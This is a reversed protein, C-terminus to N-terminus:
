QLGTGDGTDDARRGESHATIGCGDSRIKQWAFEPLPDYSASLWEQFQQELEEPSIQLLSPASGLGETWLSRLAGAGLHDHMFEFLAAAQLYAILDNQTRFERVLTRLEILSGEDSITRAVRGNEYGGCEGDVFTALGEVSAAGAARGWTRLTVVHTLEHREFARWDANFVLVVADEGYYAFGTVPSGILREMDDRSDIYILQLTSPYAAVDLRRLVHSRSSEARRTVSDRNADAFSGTPFHIRMGATETTVWEYRADSLIRDVEPSQVAGQSSPSCAAIALLCPTTKRYLDM